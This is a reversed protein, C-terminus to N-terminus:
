SKKTLSLSLASKTTLGSSSSSSSSSSSPLPSPPPPTVSTSQNKEPDVIPNFSLVLRGSPLIKSHIIACPDQKRLQDFQKKYALAFGLSTERASSSQQTTIPTTDNDESAYRGLFKVRRKDVAPSHSLYPSDILSKPSCSASSAAGQLSVTGFIAIISFLKLNQSM